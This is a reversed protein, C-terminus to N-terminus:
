FLPAGLFGPLLAVVAGAAIAPAYPFSGAKSGKGVLAGVWGVSLFHLTAMLRREKLLYAVALVGGALSAYIAAAVVFHPGKLAGIAVMLKVDGAGMAGLTFPILMIALGALLGLGSQSLGAWGGFAGNALLGVLMAPYTTRNSIRRRRLDTFVAHALAAVLLADTTMSITTPTM